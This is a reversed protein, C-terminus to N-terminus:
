GTAVLPGLARRFVTLGKERAATMIKEKDKSLEVLVCRATSPDRYIKNKKDFKPLKQGDM